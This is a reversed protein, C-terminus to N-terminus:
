LLMLFYYVTSALLQSSILFQRMHLAAGRGEIGLTVGKMEEESPFPFAIAIAPMILLEHKIAAASINKHRPM